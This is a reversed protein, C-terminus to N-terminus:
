IKFVAIHADEYIPAGLVKRYKHWLRDLDPPPSAVEPLQAEFRKHLIVYEVGHARMAPLDDMSILNRFKLRSKDDVLSLVQDIYTNGYINGPALVTALMM